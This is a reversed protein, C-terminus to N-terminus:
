QSNKVCAGNKLILLDWVKMHGKKAVVEFVDITLITSTDTKGALLVELVEFKGAGAAQLVHCQMNGDDFQPRSLYEVNSIHGEEIAVALPMQDKTASKILTQFSQYKDPLIAKLIEVDAWGAAECVHRLKHGDDFPSLLRITALHRHSLAHGLPTLERKSPQKLLKLLTAKDKVVLAQDLLEKLIQHAKAEAAIHFLNQELNLHLEDFAKGEEYKVIERAIVLGKKLKLYEGQLADEQPEEPEVEQLTEITELIGNEAQCVLRFVNLISEKKIKKKKLEPYSM